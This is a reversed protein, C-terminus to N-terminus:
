FNLNLQSITGATDIYTYYYKGKDTNYGRGIIVVFHDTTGENVGGRPKENLGIMIPRPPIADLHRDICAIAKAYKDAPNNGYYQLAGDPDEAIM